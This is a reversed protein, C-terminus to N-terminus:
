VLWLLQSLFKHYKGGLVRKVGSEVFPSNGLWAHNGDGPLLVSLELGAQAVNNCQTECVLLITQEKLNLKYTGLVWSTTLQKM